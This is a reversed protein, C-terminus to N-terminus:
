LMEMYSTFDDKPISPITFHLFQQPSFACSAISAFIVYKEQSDADTDTKMPVWLFTKTLLAHCTHTFAHAHRHTHTQESSM